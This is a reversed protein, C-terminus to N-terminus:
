KSLDALSKLPPPPAKKDRATKIAEAFEDLEDATEMDESSPESRRIVQAMFDRMANLNALKQAEEDDEDMEEEGEEESDTHM